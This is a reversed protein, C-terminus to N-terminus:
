QPYFRVEPKPFDRPNVNRVFTLRVGHNDRWWQWERADRTMVTDARALSGLAKAGKSLPKLETTRKGTTKDKKFRSEGTRALTKKWSVTGPM